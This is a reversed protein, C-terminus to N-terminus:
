EIPADDQKNVVDEIFTVREIGDAFPAVLFTRCTHQERDEALLAVATRHGSQDAIKDPYLYGVTVHKAIAHVIVFLAAIQGPDVCKSSQMM